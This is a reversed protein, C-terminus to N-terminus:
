EGHLGQLNLFLSDGLGDYKGKYTQEMGIVYYARSQIHHHISISVRIAKHCGQFLTLVAAAPDNRLQM